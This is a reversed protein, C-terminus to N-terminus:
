KVELRIPEVAFEPLQKYMVYKGPAYWCSNTKVEEFARPVTPRTWWELKYRTVEEAFELSWCKKVGIDNHDNYFDDRCGNCFNINGAM